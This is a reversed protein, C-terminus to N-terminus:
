SYLNNDHIYQAVAQPVYKEPSLHQAIADRITTSSIDSQALEENDMISYTLKYANKSGFEKELEFIPPREVGPRPYIIFKGRTVLETARYWSHLGVLSDMGILLFLECDSYIQKLIAMTDFTYSPAGARQLEVDTFSCKAQGALALKIMELRQEPTAVLRNMKHPPLLAPVFLVEDAKDLELVKQAILLHGNHIPDFSGGFVAIRQKRAYPLPKEDNETNAAAGAENVGNQPQEGEANNNNEDRGFRRRPPRDFGNGNEDRDFRRRPRDFGDGEGRDFRRRPRDFGDGDRRSFRDHRPWTDKSVNDKNESDQPETGNEDPVKQEATEPTQEAAETSSGSPTESQTEAASIAEELHMDDGDHQETLPKDDGDPKEDQNSFSWTANDTSKRDQDGFDRPPRTEEGEQGETKRPPHAIGNADVEYSKKFPRYSAHMVGNDDEMLYPSYPRYPRDGSIAIDDKRNSDIVSRESMEDVPGSERPDGFRRPPRSPRDGNENRKFPRRYPRDGGEGGNEDRRFPRRFPRDGGEGNNNDRNFPRRYSPREGGEGGNEDRNFRNYPRRYPRDGDGEGGNEDRNFRNYPRYPRDGNEGGNEDRNFRKYPRYPREGGEGSGNEDRNFRKYPRYPRDGGEGGEGGNNDRHFPRRYPREGGEGGNEDRNFRKYPRYPRDNGDGGEGNNNDRNYPRRYPREGGDGNNNDRNYPRYPRYPRDGGEGGNEDRNFRNRPRYPREGNANEDRKYPRYPRFSGGGSASDDKKYPRFSGGNSANDDKRYPRRPRDEGGNEAPKYQNYWHDGGSDGDRRPPHNEAGSEPREQKPRDSQDGKDSNDFQSDTM